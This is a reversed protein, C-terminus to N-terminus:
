LAGVRYGAGTGAVGFLVAGVRQVGRDPGLGREIGEVLEAKRAGALQSMDGVRDLLERRSYERGFLTTM